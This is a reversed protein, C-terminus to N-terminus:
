PVSCYRQNTQAGLVSVAGATGLCAPVAGAAAATELRELETLGSAAEGGAGEWGRRLWGRSPLRSPSRRPWPPAGM